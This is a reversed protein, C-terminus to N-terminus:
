EESNGSHDHNEGCGFHEIHGYDEDSLGEGQLNSAVTKYEVVETSTSAYVSATSAYAQAPFSTPAYAYMASSSVQLFLESLYQSYNGEYFARSLHYPHMISVPIPTYSSDSAFVTQSNHPRGLVCHGLEHFMLQERASNSVSASKWFKTNITIMPSSSGGSRCVGLTNSGSLSDDYTVVLNSFDVSRNYQAALSEFRDLYVSFEGNINVTKEQACGILGLSLILILNKM